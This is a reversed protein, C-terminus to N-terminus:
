VKPDANQKEQKLRNSLWSQISYRSVREEVPLRAALLEEQVCPTLDDDPDPNSITRCDPIISVMQFCSQRDGGKAVGRQFSQELILKARPGVTETVHARLAMWAYGRTLASMCTVTVIDITESNTETQQSVANSSANDTKSETLAKLRRGRALTCGNRQHHQLAEVSNKFTFCWQCM